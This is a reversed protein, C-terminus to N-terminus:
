INSSQLVQSIGIDVLGYRLHGWVKKIEPRQLVKEKDVFWGM